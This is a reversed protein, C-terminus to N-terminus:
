GSRSACRRGAQEVRYRTSSRDAGIVACARRESMEYTAQLYTVAERRGAPTVVKKGVLDKLASM